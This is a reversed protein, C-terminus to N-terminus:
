NNDTFPFYISISGDINKKRYSAPVFSAVKRLIRNIEIVYEDDSNISYSIPGNRYTYWCVISTIKGNKDIFVNALIAKKSTYMTKNFNKFDVRYKSEKAILRDIQKPKIKIPIYEMGISRLSDTKKIVESSYNEGYISNKYNFFVVDYCQVERPLDDSFILSDEDHWKRKQTFCTNEKIWLWETKKFYRSALTDEYYNNYDFDMTTLYSLNGRNIDKIAAQYYRDCVSTDVYGSKSIIKYVEEKEIIQSYSVISFSTFIILLLHKM